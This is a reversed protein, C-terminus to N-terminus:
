LTFRSIVGALPQSCRNTLHLDTIIMIPDCRLLQWGTSARKVRCVWDDGATQPYFSGRLDRCYIELQTSNVVHVRRVSLWPHTHSIDARVLSLVARFDAESLLYDKGDIAPDGPRSVARQETAPAVAYSSICGAMALAAVFRM